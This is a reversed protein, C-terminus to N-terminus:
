SQGPRLRGFWCAGATRVRDVATARCAARAIKSRSMAFTSLADNTGTIGAGEEEM